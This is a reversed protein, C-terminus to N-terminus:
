AYGMQVSGCLWCVCTGIKWFEAVNWEVRMYKGDPLLKEILLVAALNELALPAAVTLRTQNLIRVRNLLDNIRGFGLHEQRVASRDAVM